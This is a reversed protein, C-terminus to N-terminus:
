EGVPPAQVLQPNENVVQEIQQAMLAQFAATPQNMAEMEARFIRLDFVITTIDNEKTVPNQYYLINIGKMKKSDRELEAFFPEYKQLMSPQPDKAIISSVPVTVISVGKKVRDRLTRPSDQMAREQEAEWKCLLHYLHLHEPCYTGKMKRGNTVKERAIFAESEGTIPNQWYMEWLSRGSEEDTIRAYLNDHQILTSCDCGDIVCLHAQRNFKYKRGMWRWPNFISRKLPTLLKYAQKIDKKRAKAPNADQSPYFNVKPVELNQEGAVQQMAAQATAQELLAAHSLGENGQQSIALLQAANVSALTQEPAKQRLM